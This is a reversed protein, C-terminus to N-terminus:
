DQLALTAKIGALMESHMNAWQEEQTLEQLPDRLEVLRALTGGRRIERTAHAPYGLDGPSQGRSLKDCETNDVGRLFESDEVSINTLECAMLFLTAFCESPCYKFKKDTAWALSANIDGRMKVGANRVGEKALIGIGITAAM